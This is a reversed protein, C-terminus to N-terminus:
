PALALALKFRLVETEYITSPRLHTGALRPGLPGKTGASGIAENLGMGASYGLGHTNDKRTPLLLPTDRPAYTHKKAEEDDEDEPLETVASGTSFQLDQLRRQRYTLRPGIGQGLRWGMKKLIRAGPSDKPAPLLSSALKAAM